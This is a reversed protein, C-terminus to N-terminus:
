EEKAEARAARESMDIAEALVILRTFAKFWIEGMDTNAWESSWGPLRGILWRLRMQAPSEGTVAVTEGSM